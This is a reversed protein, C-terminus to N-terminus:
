RGPRSEHCVFFRAIPTSGVVNLKPLQCEVASNRGSVRRKDTGRTLRPVDQEDRGSDVMDTGKRDLCLVPMSFRRPLGMSGRATRGVPDYVVPTSNATKQRISIGRMPNGPFPDSQNNKINDCDTVGWGPWGGLQAEGRVGRGSPLPSFLVLNDTSIFGLRVWSSVLAEPRRPFRYTAERNASVLIKYLPMQTRKSMKLPGWQIDQVPLDNAVPPGLRVLGAPFRWAPSIQQQRM